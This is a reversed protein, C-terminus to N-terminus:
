HRVRFNNRITLRVSVLKKRLDQVCFRKVFICLAKWCYIKSRGQALHHSHLEIGEFKNDDCVNESKEM